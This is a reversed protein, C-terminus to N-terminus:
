QRQHIQLFVAIQIIQQIFRCNLFHSFVSFIHANIQLILIQDDHYKLTCSKVYVFVKMEIHCLFLPTALELNGEQCRYDGKFQLM